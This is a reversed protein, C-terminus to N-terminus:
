KCSQRSKLPYSKISQLFKLIAIPNPRAIEVLRSGGERASDKFNLFSSIVTKTCAKIVTTVRFSPSTHFSVTPLLPQRPPSSIKHRLTFPEQHSDHHSLSVTPVITFIYTPKALYFILAFGFLTMLKFYKVEKAQTAVDRPALVDATIGLGDSISSDIRITSAEYRKFTEPLSRKILNEREQSYMNTSNSALAAQGM